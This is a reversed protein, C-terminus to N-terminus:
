ARGRESFGWNALLVVGLLCLWVPSLFDDRSNELAQVRPLGSLTDIAVASRFDAERPDSFHAAGDVIQEGAQTVEFFGPLGATRLSGAASTGPRIEPAPGGPKTAVALSQNTGANVREFAVKEQRLSEAFRNLLIIFAPLRDANSQRLDFNIVLSREPGRGRLFILPREGQWLLVEDGAHSPIQLTDRCLLGQWSLGDTLPHDEAVVTGGLYTSSESADALAFISRPPPAAPSLPDYRALNLDAKGFPAPVSRPISKAFRDFFGDLPTGPQVGIALLKLEPRVIPLRDDPKFGDAELVVECRDAGAPLEGSLSQIQGPQLTLRSPNGAGGASELHWERTQPNAGHNRVMATWKTGEVRLGIFGVNELPTGAAIVRVGEPVEHPRDTAFIAVGNRGVLTQAVRLAPDPDHTGLAPQWAALKGLLAHLDPGSYLTPRSLDSETLIWETRAAAHSLEELRRALAAAVLDRSAQMSVSSDLVIAVTQASDERMWRPQALLWALLVVALLQLWLPLSNRLREFRRGRASVPALQDLLFLTSTVIRRSKRQLFHIALVAPLGLLALWGAPNAFILDM